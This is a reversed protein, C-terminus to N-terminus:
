GGGGVFNSDLCNPDDQAAKKGGPDRDPLGGMRSPPWYVAFAKGILFSRPVAGFYRGDQSNDRNDGMMLYSDKPVKYPGFESAATLMRTKPLPRMYPERLTRTGVQVHHGTVTITEGPLGIIRKIYTDNARTVVRRGNKERPKLPSDQGAAQTRDPRGREDTGAPPHFVVVDGRGPTGFRYALRNVLVRDECRLTNEMSSSPIRYPKVLFAQVSWALALAVVVTAIVERISGGEDEEPADALLVHEDLDAISGSPPEPTM